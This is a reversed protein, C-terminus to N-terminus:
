CLMWCLWVRCCLLGVPVANEREGPHSASSILSADLTVDYITARFDM